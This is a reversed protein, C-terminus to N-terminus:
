KKCLLVFIEIIKTFLEGEMIEIKNDVYKLRLSNKKFFVTM